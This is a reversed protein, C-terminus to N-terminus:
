ESAEVAVGQQWLGYLPSGERVARVVDILSRATTEVDAPTTERGLGLRLANRALHAPLGIAGLVHSPQLKASACASGSSLAVGRLGAIVADSPALEFSLHLNGPLRSTPHGNLRVDPLEARLRALLDAALERLRASESEMADLALEAARGMGVIGPVNLTGSRLGHEHGGGHLQPQLRVRPQRRRVYLAGVGKPGYFKHASLSVLDIGMATVDLPLKGFTQAADVHLLVGHPKVEAAIAELDQVTGIENNAHQVSVLVTEPTIAAAIAGGEVLGTADVPLYTVRWGQAELARCADLTALHETALTILHKGRDAYAEAVGKLALNTAETAGSTWVIEEARAGLGWAVAQRAAKVGEAAEWGYPHQSSPNGFRETFYPLMADLVRPDVPTTAQHDMYIRRMPPM